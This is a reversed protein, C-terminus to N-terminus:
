PCRPASPPAPTACAGDGCLRRERAVRDALRAASFRPMGGDDPVDRAADLMARLRTGSATSRAAGADSALHLEALDHLVWYNLTHVSDSPASDVGGRVLRDAIDRANTLSSLAARTNGAGRQIAAQGLLYTISERKITRPVDLGEYTRQLLEQAESRRGNMALWRVYGDAAATIGPESLQVAERYAVQASDPCRYWVDFLEAMGLRAASALAPDREVQATRLAARYMTMASDAQGRLALEQGREWSQEGPAVPQAHAPALPCLLLAAASALAPVPRKLHTLM